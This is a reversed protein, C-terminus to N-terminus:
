GSRRRISCCWATGASDRQRPGTARGPLGARGPARRDQRGVGGAAGQLASRGAGDPRVAPIRSRGHEAGTAGGAPPQRDPGRGPQVPAPGAERDPQAARPDARGRRGAARAARRTARRGTRGAGAGVPAGSDRWGGATRLRGVPRAAGAAGAAAPRSRARNRWADWSWPRARQLARWAHCWIRSWETLLPLLTPAVPDAGALLLRRRAPTRNRLCAYRCGCARRRCGNAGNHVSNTRCTPPRSRARRIATRGRWTHAPARWGNRMPRTATPQVVGSLAAVGGAERWLAAQRYPALLRTDNVLLFELEPLSAALRARHGLELLLVAPSAAEPAEPMNLRSGTM